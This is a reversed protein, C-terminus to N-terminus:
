GGTVPPFFAVEDGDAVHAATDSMEQNVAVMVTEEPAFVESWAGGRQRLLTIIDDVTAIEPTADLQESDSELTERLKAFYRLTIM